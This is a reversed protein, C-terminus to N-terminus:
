PAFPDVLDPSSTTPSEDQRDGFPDRLEEARDSASPSDKFPNKLDSSSSSSPDNRPRPRVEPTEPNAFPDKLDPSVTPPIPRDPETIPATFGESERPGFPDKLDPSTPPATPHVTPSPDVVDWDRRGPWLLLALVAAAAVLGAAMAPWWNAAARRIEAGRRERAEDLRIIEPEAQTSPLVLSQPRWRLTGLSRELVALDESASGQGSWLYEDDHESM